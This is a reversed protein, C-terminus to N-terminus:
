AGKAILARNKKGRTRFSPMLVEIFDVVINDGAETTISDLSETNIRVGELDRKLVILSTQATLRTPNTKIRLDPM